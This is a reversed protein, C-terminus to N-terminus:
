LGRFTTCRFQVITNTKSLCQQSQLKPPNSANNQVCIIMTAEVYRHNCSRALEKNLRLRHTLRSFAPAATNKSKFYEDRPSCPLFVDEVCQDRFILVQTEHPIFRTSVRRLITQCRKIGWIPLYRDVVRLHLPDKDYNCLSIRYQYSPTKYQVLGMPLIAFWFNM